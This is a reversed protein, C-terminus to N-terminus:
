RGRGSVTPRLVFYVFLLHPSSPNLAVYSNPAYQPQNGGIPSVLSGTGMQSKECVIKINTGLNLSGSNEICVGTDTTSIATFSSSNVITAESGAEITFLPSASGSIAVPNLKTASNQGNLDLTVGDPITLSASLDTVPQWLKVTSGYQAAALAEQLTSYRTSSGNQILEIETTIVSTSATQSLTPYSLSYNTAPTKTVDHNQGFKEKGNLSTETVTDSGVLFYHFRAQSTTLKPDDWTPDIAYWNGDLQVYNWAHQEGNPWNGQNYAWGEIYANPINAADLLVKFATAYGYCVPATTESNNSLIGSAACRSYNSAGMGLPNYVNHLAIWNDLYRLKTVTDGSTPMGAIIENIKSQFQARLGPLSAVDFGEYFFSEGTVKSALSWVNDGSVNWVLKSSDM